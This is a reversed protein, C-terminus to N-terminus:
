NLSVMDKKCHDICAICTQAALLERPHGHPSPLLVEQVHNLVVGGAEANVLGVVRADHTLGKSSM